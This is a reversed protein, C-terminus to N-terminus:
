KTRNANLWEIFKRIGKEFEMTPNYGLIERAKTIDAYTLNVDGNQAERFEKKAHKGTCKELTLILEDLKITRAGGLNIIEFGKIRDIARIVGNVIDEIYTYDRSTSGNGYLCLPEDQLISNLFKHIALDPRQRPGYVTFFRLCFVNLGFLHHFTYCLLEGSKKTAAYPSVPCDVNDEESFPVKENNGYVSSSSAFILKNINCKTMMSLISLTGKVNVDYYSEPDKISPRVGAKAALHVVIDPKFSSFCENVLENNRIDCEIFQFLPNKRAGELNEEKIKRPYFQDFNDIGLVSYGNVLLTDVLSSGIFGAAGTVLIKQNAM